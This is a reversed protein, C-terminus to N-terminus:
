TVEWSCLKAVLDDGSTKLNQFTIGIQDPTVVWGGSDTGIQVWHEGDKSQYFTLASGVKKVRLWCGYIDVPDSPSTVPGYVTANFTPGTTYTQSYYGPASDFGLFWTQSRGTSSDRLCIGVAQYNGKVGHVDFFADCTFNGGAYSRYYLTRDSNSNSAGSFVLFDGDSAVAKNGQSEWTWSATPPPTFAGELPQNGGTPLDVQAVGVAPRTITAGNIILRGVNDVRQSPSGDDEVVLSGGGGGGSPDQWDVDYNTGSLKTLVQGALGGAPLFDDSWDADGDASSLKRLVQNLVGGNPLSTGGSGAAVEFWGSPSGSVYEVQIAEDTVYARWGIRPPIFVWTSGICLAVNNNQGAWVGTPSDNLIYRDGDSPSAPPVTTTKSIVVLEAVAELIRLAENITLHLQAQGAQAETIGLIPTTTTTM